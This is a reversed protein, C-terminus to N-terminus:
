WEKVITGGSGAWETWSGDYLSAGDGAQLLDLALLLTCASVGSGCTAIIPRAPDVGAGALRQRLAEGRLALGAGDVLTTFPLNRAGPMHGSPLGARPEPDRGSFRGESRMDVLQAGGDRIVREVAVRDRVRGRDVQATFSVPEWPTVEATVPRGEAQWRRFGGDLVSTETHGAVRLMWWARAASMNAGTGDYVVVRSRKAVGLAGLQEGLQADDPLMHPLATDHASLEDLDFFRAGPLHAAAFERLADRGSVPLYWSADLIVLDPDQLHDALWATSVLPSPFPTM